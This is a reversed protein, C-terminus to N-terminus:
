IRGSAIAQEYFRRNAQHTVWKSKFANSGLERFDRVCVDVPDVQVVPVIVEEEPEVYNYSAVEDAMRDLQAQAEAPIDEVVIKLVGRDFLTVFATNYIQMWKQAVADADRSQESARYLEHLVSKGMELDAFAQMADQLKSLDFVSLVENNRKKWIGLITRGYDLIERNSWM